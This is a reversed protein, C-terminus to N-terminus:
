YKIIYNGEPQKVGNLLFLGFIDILMFKRNGINEIEKGRGITKLASIANYSTLAANTEVYMPSGDDGGLASIYENGLFILDKLDTAFALNGTPTVCVDNVNTWSLDSSNLIETVALGAPNVKFLKEYSNLIILSNIASSYFFRLDDYGANFGSSTTQLVNSSNYKSIFSQTSIYYIYKNGTNDEAYSFYPTYGTQVSFFDSNLVTGAPNIKLVYPNFFAPNYPTNRFQQNGCILSDIRIEGIFFCNGSNDIGINRNEYPYDFGRTGIGKVWGFNGNADYKALFRDTGFTADYKQIGIMHNIGNLRISDNLIGSIYVNGSNDVAMQKFANGYGFEVKVWLTNGLTDFKALFAKTGPNPNSITQNGIKVSSNNNIQGCVYIWSNIAKMDGIWVNGDAVFFASVVNNLDSINGRAGAGIGNNSGSSPLTISNGKSISLTNGAIGLTQLENTSDADADNKNKVNEAYLAYPVSLLQSTGLLQYTTGGSPDIEVKAFYTNVGWNISAFTGSLVSGRGIEINFLGLQNTTVAFSESYVLTGSSSGSLISIKVGLATNALPTGSNDRAVAQYNVAQPTQAYVITVFTVAILYLCLKKM